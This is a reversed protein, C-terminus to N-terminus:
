RRAKKLFHANDKRGTNPVCIVERLALPAVEVKVEVEVKVGVGLISRRAPRKQPRKTQQQLLFTTKLVGAEFSHSFGLRWIGELRLALHSKTPSPHNNLDRLGVM